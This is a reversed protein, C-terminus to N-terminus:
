DWTRTRPEWYLRNGSSAGGFGGFRNPNWGTGTGAHMPGRYIPQPPVYPRVTPRSRLLLNRAEQLRRANEQERQRRLADQRAREQMEAQQRSAERQRQEHSRRNTEAQQRQREQSARLQAAWRARDETARQTQRLADLQRQREQSARLQAAWRARDETARQTQRLADFRARERQARGFDASIARTVPPPFWPGSPRARFPGPRIPSPSSGFLSRVSEFLRGFIGGADPRPVPRRPGRPGRRPQVNGTGAVSNEPDAVMQLTVTFRGEEYDPVPDVNDLVLRAGPVADKPPPAVGKGKALDGLIELLEEALSKVSRDRKSLRGIAAKLGKKSSSFGSRASAFFEDADDRPHQSLESDSWQSPEAIWIGAPLTADVAGERRKLSLQVKKTDKLRAYLDAIRLAANKPAKASNKYYDFIAHGMEHRVTRPDVAAHDVIVTPKQQYHRFVNQHPNITILCLNVKFAPDSILKNAKEIENIVAAVAKASVKTQADDLARVVIAGRRYQKVSYQEWHWEKEPVLGGGKNKGAM